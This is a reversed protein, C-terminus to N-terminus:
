PVIKYTFLYEVAYGTTKSQEVASTHLSFYKSHLLYVINLNQKKAISVLLLILNGIM